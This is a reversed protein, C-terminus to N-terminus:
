GRREAWQMLRDISSRTLDDAPMPYGQGALYRCRRIGLNRRVYNTDWHATAMLGRLTRRAEDRTRSSAKTQATDILVKLVAVLDRQGLPGKQPSGWGASQNHGRFGGSM